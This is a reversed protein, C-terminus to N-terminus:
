KKTLIFVGCDKGDHIYRRITLNVKDFWSTLVSLPYTELKLKFFSRRDFSLRRAVLTSFLNHTLKFLLSTVSKHLTGLVGVEM